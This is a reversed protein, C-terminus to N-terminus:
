DSQVAPSWVGREGEREAAEEATEVGAITKLCKTLYQAIARFAVRVEDELYQAKVIKGWTDKKKSEYIDLLSAGDPRFITVKPM